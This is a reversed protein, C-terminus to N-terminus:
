HCVHPVSILVHTCKLFLLFLRKKWHLGCSPLEMNGYWAAPHISNTDRTGIMNEYYLGRHIGSCSNIEKFNKIKKASNVSYNGQWKM